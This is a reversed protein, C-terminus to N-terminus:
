DVLDVQWNTRQIAVDLQRHERALEDITARLEPVALAPLTRLESRLHRFAVVAGMRPGGDDVGSVANAARTWTAHRMRLVDRRALADTLTSGDELRASANTRNIRRILDELQTFVRDLEALMATADETPEDGEQFRANAQVRARLQEVAKMADSRAALAEALKM